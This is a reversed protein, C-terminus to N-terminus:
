LGEWLTKTLRCGQQVARRGARRYAPVIEPVGCLLIIPLPQSGVAIRSVNRPTARGALLVRTSYSSVPATSQSPSLEVGLRKRTAWM